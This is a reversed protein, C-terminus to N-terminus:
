PVICANNNKIDTTCLLLIDIIDGQVKELYWLSVTPQGYDQKMIAWRTAWRHHLVLRAIISSKALLPVSGVNYHTCASKAIIPSLLHISGVNYHTCITQAIIFFKALLPILGVHQPAQTNIYPKAKLSISGVVGANTVQKRRVKLHAHFNDGSRCYRQEVRVKM